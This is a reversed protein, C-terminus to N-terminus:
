AHDLGGGEMGHFRITDHQDSVIRTALVHKVFEAEARVFEQGAGEGPDTELDVVPEFQFAAALGAQVFENRNAVELVSGPEHSM